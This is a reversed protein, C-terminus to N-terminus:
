LEEKLERIAVAIHEIGADMRTRFQECRVASEEIAKNRVHQGFRIIAQRTYEDLEDWCGQAILGSSYIEDDFKDDDWSLVRHTVKANEFMSM